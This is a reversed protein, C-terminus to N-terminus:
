VLSFEVSMVEPCRRVKDLLDSFMLLFEDSDKKYAHYHAKFWLFDQDIETCVAAAITAADALWMDTQRDELSNIEFSDNFKIHYNVLLYIVVISLDYSVVPGLIHEVRSGVEVLFSEPDAENIKFKEVNM